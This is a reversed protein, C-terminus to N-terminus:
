PKTTGSMARTKYVEFMIEFLDVGCDEFINEIEAFCPYSWFGKNYLNAEDIKVPSRENCMMFKHFGIYCRYM